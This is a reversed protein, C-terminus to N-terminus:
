WKAWKPLKHYAVDCKEEAILASEINGNLRHKMAAEKKVAYHRLTALASAAERLEEPSLADLNLNIEM